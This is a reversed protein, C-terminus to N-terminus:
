APIMFGREHFDTFSVVKDLRPLPFADGTAARWRAVEKPPLLGKEMLQQLKAETVTSPVWEGM